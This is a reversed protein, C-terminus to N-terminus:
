LGEPLAPVYVETGTLEDDVGDEVEQEPIFPALLEESKGIPYDPVVLLVPM